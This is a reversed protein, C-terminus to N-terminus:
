DPSEYFGKLNEAITQIRDRIFFGLLPHMARGLWSGRLTYSMSLDAVTKERGLPSLRYRFYAEAMPIPPGGEGNHLRIVFGSGEDWEVVTEDFGEDNEGSYIRRSAGIGSARDTTIEVRTVGPVYNNALRLDRLRAWAKAIPMDIQVRSHAFHAMEREPGVMEAGTMGACACLCVCGTALGFAGHFSIAHQM